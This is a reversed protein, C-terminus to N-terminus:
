RDHLVDRTNMVKVRTNKPKHSSNDGMTSLTQRTHTDHIVTEDEDVDQYEVSMNGKRNRSAKNQFTMRNNRQVIDLDKNSNELSSSLNGM